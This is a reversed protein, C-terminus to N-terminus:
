DREEIDRLRPLVKETVQEVWGAPDPGSPGVWIQDIGLDAYGAMARLFGDVDTLPDTGTIVTKRIEAPDRGERECHGALVDLKHAVGDPGIDFLNCADAYRAVFKLTKAEGM